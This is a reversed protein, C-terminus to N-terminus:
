LQPFRPLSVLHEIKWTLSKHGVSLRIQSQQTHPLAESSSKEIMLTISVATIFVGSFILASINRIGMGRAGATTYKVKIGVKQNRPHKEIGQFNHM